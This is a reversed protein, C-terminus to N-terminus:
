GQRTVGEVGGQRKDIWLGAGDTSCTDLRAVVADGARFAPAVRREKATIFRQAPLAARRTCCRYTVVPAFDKPAASTVILRKRV